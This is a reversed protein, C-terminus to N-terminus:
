SDMLGANQLKTVLDAVENRLTELAASVTDLDTAASSTVTTAGSAPPIFSSVTVAGAALDESLRSM